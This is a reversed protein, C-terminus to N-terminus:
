AASLAPRLEVDVGRNSEYERVEERRGDSSRGDVAVAFPRTRGSSRESERVRSSPRLVSGLEDLRRGLVRSDVLAEAEAATGM